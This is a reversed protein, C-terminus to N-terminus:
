ENAQHKCCAAADRSSSRLGSYESGTSCHRHEWGRSWNARGSGYYRRDVGGAYVLWDGGWCLNGWRGARNGWGWGLIFDLKFNPSLDGDIVQAVELDAATLDGELCPKGV